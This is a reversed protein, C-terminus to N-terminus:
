YNCNSNCKTRKLSFDVTKNHEEGDKWITVEAVGGGKQLQKTSETSLPIIKFASMTPASQTRLSINEEKEKHLLNKRTAYKSKFLSKM